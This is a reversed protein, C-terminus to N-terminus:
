HHRSLSNSHVGTRGPNGHHKQTLHGSDKAKVHTLFVTKTLVHIQNKYSAEERVIFSLIWIEWEIHRRTNVLRKCQSQVKRICCKILDETLAVLYMPDDGSQENFFFPPFCVFLISGLASCPMLPLLGHGSLWPGESESSCGGRGSDKMGEIVM